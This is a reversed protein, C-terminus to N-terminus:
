GLASRGRAMGRRAQLTLQDAWMKPSFVIGASAAPQYAHPAPLAPPQAGDSPVAAGGRRGFAPLCSRSVM